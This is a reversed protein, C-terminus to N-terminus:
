RLVWWSPFEDATGEEGRDTLNIHLNFDSAFQNVAEVTPQWREHYDHGAMIGGPRLRTWWKRMTTGGDQGTHAYGDIYIFDFKDDPFLALAEDFTNRLLCYKAYKAMRQKTAEFEASDHHDAYRDVGFLYSAPFNVMLQESFDGKAVGLEIFVFGVRYRPFARIFRPIDIRKM